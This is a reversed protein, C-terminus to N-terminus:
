RGLVRRATRRSVNFEPAALGALVQTLDEVSRKAAAAFCRRRRLLALMGLSGLLAVGPEPVATVTGNLNIPTTSVTASTSGFNMIRHTGATSVDGVGDSQIADVLGIRFEYTGATLTGVSSLDLTVSGYSENSTSFTALNSAYSDGSHRIAFNRPGTNSSRATFAWTTLALKYNEGVTISFGYYNGSTGNLATSWSTTNMGGSGSTTALETGIGIASVTIGTAVNSSPISTEMGSFGSTDWQALAAANALPASVALLLSRFPAKIKM